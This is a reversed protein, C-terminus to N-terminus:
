SPARSRPPNARAAPTTRRIERLRDRIVIVGVDFIVEPIPLDPAVVEPFPVPKPDHEAIVKVEMGVAASGLQFPAKRDQFPDSPIELIEVTIAFAKQVVVV